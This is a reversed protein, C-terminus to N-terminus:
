LSFQFCKALFAFQRQRVCAFFWLLSVFVKTNDNKGNTHDLLARVRACVCTM